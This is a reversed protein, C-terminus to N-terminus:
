GGILGFLSYLGFLAGLLVNLVGFITNVIFAQRKLRYGHPVTNMLLYFGGAVMVAGILVKIRLLLHGEESFQHSPGGTRAQDKPGYGYDYNISRKALHPAGVLDHAVFPSSPKLDIHTWEMIKKDYIVAYDQPRTHLDCVYPQVGGGINGYHSRNVDAIIANSCIASPMERSHSGYDGVVRIFIRSRNERPVKDVVGWIAQGFNVVVGPFSDNQPCNHINGIGGSNFFQPADSSLGKINQQSGGLPSVFGDGERSINWRFPEYKEFRSEAFNASLILLATLVKIM